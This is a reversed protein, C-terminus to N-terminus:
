SRKGAMFTYASSNISPASGAVKIGFNVSGVVLPVLLFAIVYILLSRWHVKVLFSSM